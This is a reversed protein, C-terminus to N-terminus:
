KKHREALERLHRQLAEKTLPWPPDASSKLDLRAGSDVLLDAIEVFPAHNSDWNMIAHMLPTVGERSEANVDAGNAILLRAIEPKSVNHLTTQGLGDRLNVNAGHRLLLEVVKPDDSVQLAPAGQPYAPSEVYQDAKAGHDFMKGLIEIDKRRVAAILPSDGYPESLGANAGAAALADVVALKTARNMKNDEIVLLLASQQDVGTHDIDAGLSVLAGIMDVSGRLAVIIIAPQKGDILRNPDFGSKVLQSLTAVDNQALADEFRDRQPDAAISPCRRCIARALEQQESYRAIRTAEAFIAQNIPELAAQQDQPAGFCRLEQPLHALYSIRHTIPDPRAFNWHSGTRILGTEDIGSEKRRYDQWYGDRYFFLQYNELKGRTDFTYAGNVDSVAVRVEVCEHSCHGFGFCETRTGIVWAGAIPQKTDLDTVQGSPRASGFVSSFWESLTDAYAFSATCSAAILVVLRVIHKTSGVPKVRNVQIM